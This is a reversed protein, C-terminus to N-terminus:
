HHHQVVEGFAAFGTARDCRASAGVVMCSLLFVRSRWTAPVSSNTPATISRRDQYPPVETLAPSVHDRSLIRPTQIATNASAWVMNVNLRLRACGRGRRRRHRRTRSRARWIRDLTQSHTESYNRV